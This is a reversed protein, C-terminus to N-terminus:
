LLALERCGLRQQRAPLRPPAGRYGTVGRQRDDSSRICGALTSRPRGCGYSRRILSSVITSAADGVL